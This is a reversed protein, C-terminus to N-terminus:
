NGGIENSADKIKLVKMDERMKRSQEIRALTKRDQELVYNTVHTRKFDPPPILEEEKTKM